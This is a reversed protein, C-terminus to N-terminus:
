EPEEAEIKEEFYTDTDPVMKKLEMIDELTPEGELKWTQIIEIAAPIGYKAILEVIFAVLALEPSM